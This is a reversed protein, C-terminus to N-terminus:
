QLLRFMLTNGHTDSSLDRRLTSTLSFIYMSVLRTQAEVDLCIGLATDTSPGAYLLAYERREPGHFMDFIDKTVMHPGLGLGCVQVCPIAKARDRIIECVDDGPIMICNPLVLELIKVSPCTELIRLLSPLYLPTFRLTSVGAFTTSTNWWESWGDVLSLTRLAPLHLPPDDPHVHSVLLVFSPSTGTAYFETLAPLAGLMTLFLQLLRGNAIDARIVSLRGRPPSLITVIHHAARAMYPELQETVDTIALVLPLGKSRTVVDSLQNANKSPRRALSNRREMISAIAGDSCAKAM